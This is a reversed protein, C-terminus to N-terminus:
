YIDPFLLKMDEDSIERGTQNRKEKCCAMNADARSCIRGSHAEIIEKYYNIQKDTCGCANKNGCSFLFLIAFSVLIKICSKM